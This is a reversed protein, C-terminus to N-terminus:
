LSGILEKASIKMANKSRKTLKKHVLHDITKKGKPLTALLYVIKVSHTSTIRRARFLTQFYEEANWGRELYYMVKAATLTHGYKGVAPHMILVTLKGEQFRKKLATRDAIKTFGMMIGVTFHPFHEEIMEKIAHATLTHQVWVICPLEEVALMVMLQNWKCAIFPGGVLAPNSAVQLLRGTMSILTKLTLPTDRQMLSAEVKKETALQTYIDAQGKSMECEVITPIWDPVGEPFDCPILIDALDKQLKEVSGPKDEKVIEAWANKETFCYRRAFKWYSSFIKPYLIRLQQYIDDSFRSIPMGSLLWVKDFSNALMVMPESRQAKRNKFLFSEDLILISPGGMDPLNIDLTSNKFMSLIVNPTTIIVLNENDTVSLPTIDKATYWAETRINQGAANVEATWWTHVQEKWDDVLSNPCVILTFKPDNRKLATLAMITKGSGPTATLIAKDRFTLIETPVQQVPKLGPIQLDEQVRNAMECDMKFKEISPALTLGPVFEELENLALTIGEAQLWDDHDNVRKWCVLEDKLTQIPISDDVKLYLKKTEQQYSVKM